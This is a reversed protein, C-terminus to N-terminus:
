ILSNLSLVMNGLKKRMLRKARNIICRVGGISCNLQEGIERYSKKDCIRQLLALRERPKLKRVASKVRRHSESQEVKQFSDDMFPSEIEEVFVLGSTKKRRLYDLASNRAVIYLWSLMAKDSPFHLDRRYLKMFSEQVIDEAIYHDRTLKMVYGHLGHRYLMLLLEFDMKKSRTGTQTANIQATNM